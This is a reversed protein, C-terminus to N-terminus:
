VSQLRGNHELRKKKGKNEEGAEVELNPNLVPVPDIGTDKGIM